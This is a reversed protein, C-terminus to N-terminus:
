EFEKILATLFDDKNEHELRLNVVKAPSIVYDRLKEEFEDPIIDNYYHNYMEKITDISANQMELTMDIRGPRILAPDLSNYDNSTMILIRGPTERIGDIINLIFSLTIKDDKQKDLSVFMSEDHEDDLKKAIKNLLKNQLKNNSINNESVNNNSTGNNNDTGPNEDGDVTDITNVTNINRKQVIKTMCDIDEFVIIKNDFGISDVNNRSYRNEFFYQFFETQTKVKNLPIVIIHRHLKNAICKIISTKGTGPPGHLGIGLTYPHGEYEYWEKNYEFFNLKNILQKKKDFFINKFNRTSSFECEDWENKVEDYNHRNNMYNSPSGMLTYIFKKNKRSNELTKKYEDNLNDLYDHIAQLPLSYSYLEVQIKETSYNRKSDESNEISTTVKCYIGNTIKFPQTQNVIFIDSGIHSNDTKRINRASKKSDGNEDYINSSDAIEKLCKINPNTLSNNSIYFWFAQFRDSFLSDTRTTYDSSKMCQKGELIIKKCIFFDLKYYLFDFIQKAYEYLYNNNSIFGIFLMLLTNIILTYNANYANANDNNNNAHNNNANNMNFLVSMKVMDMMPNSGQNHM